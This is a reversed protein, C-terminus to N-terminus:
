LCKDQMHKRLSRNQTFRAGCKQCGYQKEVTHTELHQLLDTRETFEIECKKCILDNIRSLIDMWRENFDPCREKNQLDIQYEEIMASNISSRLKNLYNKSPQKGDKLKYTSFFGFFMELVVERGDQVSLVEELSRGAQVLVHKKFVNLELKREHITRYSLDKSSTKLPDTQNINSKERNHIDIKHAVLLEKNNELKGCENCSLEDPTDVQEAKGFSPNIIDEEKQNETIISKDKVENSQQELTQCEVESLSEQSVEKTYQQQETINLSSKSLLNQDSVFSDEQKDTFLGDIQLDKAIELFSEINSQEIECQGLYMFTVISCLHDYKLKLYILPNAHPNKLLIQKFFQSASSLIVKHVKVQRQDECVLTVDNFANDQFLAKFTEFSHQNFDGRTLGLKMDDM